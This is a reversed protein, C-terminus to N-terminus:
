AGATATILWAATAGGSFHAPVCIRWPTVANRFPLGLDMPWPRVSVFFAPDQLLVHCM